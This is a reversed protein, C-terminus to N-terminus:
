FFREDDVGARDYDFPAKRAMREDHELFAQSSDEHLDRWSLDFDDIM